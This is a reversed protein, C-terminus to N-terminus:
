PTHDYISVANVVHGPYVQRITKTLTKGDSSIVNHEFGTGVGPITLIGEYTYQDILKVSATERPAAANGIVPVDRGNYLAAFHMQRPMGHANVLDSTFKMGGRIAEVKEVVKQPVESQSGPPFISKTLNLQWRGIWKGQDQSQARLAGTAIMIPLLFVAIRSM